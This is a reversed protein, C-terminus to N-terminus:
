TASPGPGEPAHGRSEAGGRARGWRRTLSKILSGGPIQMIESGPQSAGPGPPSRPPPAPQAVIQAPTEPDLPCLTGSSALPCAPPLFSGKTDFGARSNGMRSPPDRGWGLQSLQPSLQAQPGLFRSPSGLLAGGRSVLGRPCVTFAFMGAGTWGRPAVPGAGATLNKLTHGGDGIAAATLGSPEWGSRLSPPPQGGGGPLGPWFVAPVM